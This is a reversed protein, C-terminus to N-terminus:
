LLSELLPKLEPMSPRPADVSVINGQKDFVMFRPIGTVGYFKAMDSWGSAFLQIGGLQKDKVFNKWKEKDKAEDVSISVFAVNKGEMAAELEQLYPLEKKCPGCWTAWMDVLVVKGKLSRLSVTDGTMDPYAFNYGATGKKFTSLAKRTDFLVKQMNPTVLYQQYAAFVEDFKELSKYSKFDNILWVGKLTDNCIRSVSLQVRNSLMMSDHAISSLLAYRQILDSGEGLALIDAACYRGPQLIGKYYGPYYGKPPLASRPVLLISMATLELDADVTMTLLSNFVANKTRITKKFAAASPLFADLAPFFARYTTTDNLSTKNKLPTIMQQWSYLLQNEANGKLLAYDGRDDRIDLELQEGPQLYVRIYNRSAKDDVSMALYYYGAAPVPIAFAFNHQEDLATSAFEVLKGERVNYLKMGTAKEPGCKGSIMAPAACTTQIGALMALLFFIKKM